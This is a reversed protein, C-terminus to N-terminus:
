ATVSWSPDYDPHDSYVLALMTLMVYHDNTGVAFALIRRKAECDRQWRAELVGGCHPCRGPEAYDLAIPPAAEDEAIRALLFDTISM